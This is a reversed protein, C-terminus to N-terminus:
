SKVETVVFEDNLITDKDSDTYGEKTAKITHTGVSLEGLNIVGDDGTVGKYKDDVYIKAGAVIMKSCADKVTLRCPRKVNSGIGSFDVTISGYRDTTSAEVLITGEAKSFLEISDYKTQYNVKLVGSIEKSFTINKDTFQPTVKPDRGIWSYDVKGIPLYRLSASNSKTLIIQEVIDEILDKSDMLIDGMTSTLKPNLGNPYIRLYASENAKFRTKNTNKESDLILSLSSDISSSECSNKFTINATTM